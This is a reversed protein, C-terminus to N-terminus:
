AAQGPLAILLILFWGVICCPSRKHYDWPRRQAFASRGGLNFCENGNKACWADVCSGGVKRFTLGCDYVCAECSVLRLWFNKATRKCASHAAACSRGKSNWYTPRFNGVVRRCARANNACWGAKCKCQEFACSYCVNPRLWGPNKANICGAHSAACKIESVSFYHKDYGLSSTALLVVVLFGLLSARTSNIASM